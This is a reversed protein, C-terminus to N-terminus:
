QQDVEREARVAIVEANRNNVNHSGCAECMFYPGEARGRHQVQMVAPTGCRLPISGLMGHIEQCREDGTFTNM